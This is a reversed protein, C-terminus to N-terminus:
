DHRKEAGAARLIQSVRSSTVGYLAAVYSIKYRWRRGTKFQCIAVIEDLQRRTFKNARGSM